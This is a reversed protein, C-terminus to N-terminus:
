LVTVVVDAWVSGTWVVVIKAGLVIATEVVTVKGVVIEIVGTHRNALKLRSSSHCCSCWSIIARM